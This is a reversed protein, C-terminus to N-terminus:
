TSDLLDRALEVLRLRDTPAVTVWGDREHLAYRGRDTDTVTIVWPTRRRNGWRDWVAAGLQGAAIREGGVMDVLLRADNPRVGADLLASEFEYDAEGARTAQEVTAAPLNVAGGPGPPVDPLVDIMAPVFATDRVEELRLTGDVLVALVGLGGQVASMARVEPGPGPAWRLDLAAAPRALTRLAAELDADLTGDSRVLHRARLAEWAQDDIRAADELTGGLETTALVLPREALGARRWVVNFEAQELSIPM